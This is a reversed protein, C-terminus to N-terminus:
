RLRGLEFADRGLTVVSGDAFGIRLWVALDAPPGAPIAMTVRWVGPEATPEGVTVMADDQWGSALWAGISAAAVASTVQVRFSCTTGPVLADQISVAVQGQPIARSAQAAEPPQGGGGGGSSPTSGGGGGGCAGLLLLSVTIAYARLPHNM